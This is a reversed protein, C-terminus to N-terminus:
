ALTLALLDELGQRVLDASLDPRSRAVAVLIHAPDPLFGLIDSVVWFRAADADKDLRGGLRVYAARFTEADATTHLMAFDSCAHAVDLDPPGWSTEAWDILGTVTDGQWLTNGLHFDRHLLAYPTPPPGAQWVDIARRWLGPRRSWGPVEPEAPGRFSFIPPRHEVPVPQRHVEVTLRAWATIAAPGLRELRTRGPRWTMLNAPGGATAGAVDSAMLRPVPLAAGTLLRLALAERRVHERGTAGWVQPDAWRIVLPDGEALRLVWKTNTIGGGIATVEVVPHPALAEAWARARDPLAGVVEATV